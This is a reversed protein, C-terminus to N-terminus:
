KRMATWKDDHVFMILRYKWKWLYVISVTVNFMQLIVSSSFFRRTVFLCVFLDLLQHRGFFNGNKDWKSILHRLMQTKKKAVQKIWVDMSKEMHIFNTREFENRRENRKFDSKSIHLDTKEYLPNQILNIGLSM